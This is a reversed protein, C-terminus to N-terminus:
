FAPVPVVAYLKPPNAVKLPVSVFPGVQPASPTTNSPTFSLIANCSPANPVPVDAVDMKQINFVVEVAVVLLYQSVEFCEQLYAQVNVVYLDQLFEHPNRM